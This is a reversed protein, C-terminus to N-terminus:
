LELKNTHMLPELVSNDCRCDKDIQQLKELLLIKDYM